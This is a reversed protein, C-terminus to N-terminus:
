IAKDKTVGWVPTHISVERGSGQSIETSDGGMRPHPNFGDDQRIFGFGKDTVGWVPTHISVLRSQELSFFLVDGGM